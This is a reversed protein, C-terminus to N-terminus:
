LALVRRAQAILEVAGAYDVVSAGGPGLGRAALDAELAWLRGRLASLRGSIGAASGKLALVADQILM